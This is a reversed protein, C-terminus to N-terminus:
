LAPRCGKVSAALRTRVEIGLEHKTKVRQSARWRDIEERNFFNRTGNQNKYHPILDKCVLHRVYTVSVGLYRAVEATNMIGKQPAAPTQILKELMAEIRQQRECIQKLMEEM